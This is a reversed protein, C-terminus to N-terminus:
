EKWFFVLNEPTQQLKELLEIRSLIQKHLTDM